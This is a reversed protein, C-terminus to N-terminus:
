PSCDTGFGALLILLDASTVAGNGDVDQECDTTCGFESLLGLLDEIATLGDGNLDSSCPALEGSSVFGDCNVDGGLPAVPAGPYVNINDDNCDGFVTVWGPPPVGCFLQGAGEQDDGFGDGDSDPWALIPFFCSGNDETAGAAYNCADPHTCGAFEDGDCVGDNDQDGSLCNGNCDLGEEPFVCTGDDCLVFVDFNCAAPHTCGSAYLCNGDDMSSMVDHNCAAPDTCGYCSYDCPAPGDAEPDFNCAYPLMCGAHQVPPLCFETSLVSSFEPNVQHYLTDLPLSLTIFSSDECASWGNANFDQLVFSRCGADLCLTWSPSADQISGPGIALGDDPLAWGTEDTSCGLGMSITLPYCSPECTGDDFAADPNFNSAYADRCGGADLDNLCFSYFGVVGENPAELFPSGDLLSLSFDLPASCDAMLAEYGSLQDRHVEFQLCSNPLCLTDLSTSRPPLWGSRHLVRGVADRIVWGNQSAFCDTTFSVVVEAPNEIRLSRSSRTNNASREDPAGDVGTVIATFDSWGPIVALAPLSLHMSDGPALNGNWTVVSSEGGFVGFQLNLQHIVDTGLNLVPVVPYISDQCHTGRPALIRGLAADKSPPDPLEITFIGRGYTAAALRGSPAHVVLDSVVVNPLGESHREWESGPVSSKRYVGVDTGVYHLGNGDVNMALCNVPAPPLGESLNDWQLGGDWSELVKTSDNYNSLTLMVHDANSPSVAIDKIWSFENPVDLEQFTQGDTSRYLMFEKAVYIRSVDNPALGLATCAGGTLPELGTWSEGRDTSRYVKDKAMYVWDPNFASVEWPTLWAGQGNEDTAANGAIEVFANGGDDSRFLQGYYLSAYMVDQLEGHFACQFGDGGLVHEWTGNHKLYTGNDQTGAIFRDMALPDADMRYTQSISLGDSRDEATEADPQVLFAGGDNAVLLSGDPRFQLGHQDAHVFPLNGGAYWHGACSWDTGGNDSSWLNVGGAYILNADHPSVALTLDYWAQGGIDSGDVTWGLLNPGEGALMKPTWTGGGDTSQWIGALGQDNVNGAIAYATDSAQPAFALAIRSIGFSNGDLYQTDWSGGADFSEAITNGFFGALLHSPNDPDLELSAIDGTITRTWNDGGNYSTYIGLSSATWLTDPQTPHVLVRSLTRGMFPAWDLGTSSWTQGSDESTWIGISRTDGYDGDGTAIWLRNSDYPHFAIDTVGISNLQGNGMATWSLGADLSRWLGGAPACAWWEDPSDPRHVVRNLRGCGGLGSPGHPGEYNWTPSTLSRQTHEELRHEESELLSRLVAQGSPRLGQADARPKAFSLWRQFPKMGKGREANTESWTNDFAQEISDLPISPDRMWQSWHFSEQGQVLGVPLCLWGVVLFAAWTLPALPTRHTPLPAM